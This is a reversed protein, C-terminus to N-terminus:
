LASGGSRGGGMGSGTFATFGLVVAIVLGTIIALILLPLYDATQEFAEFGSTISNEVSVRIATDNIAEIDDEVLDYTQGGLAGTFIILLVTIAVGVVLTIMTMIVSGGGVQGSELLVEDERM